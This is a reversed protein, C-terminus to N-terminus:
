LKCPELRHYLSILAVFKRLLFHTVELLNVTSGQLKVGESVAAAMKETNGTGSWYIVAVNKM